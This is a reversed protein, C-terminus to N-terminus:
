LSCFGQSRQGSSCGCGGRPIVRSDGTQRCSCWSVANSGNLRLAQDNSDCCTISRNTTFSFRSGMGCRRAMRSKYECATRVVATSFYKPPKSTISSSFLVRIVFCTMSTSGSWAPQLIIAQSMVWGHHFHVTSYPSGACWWRRLESTTLQVQTGVSFSRNRSKISSHLLYTLCLWDKVFDYERIKVHPYSTLNLTRHGPM